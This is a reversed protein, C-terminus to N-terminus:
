SSLLDPVVCKSTPEDLVGFATGVKKALVKGCIELVRRARSMDALKRTATGGARAEQEQRSSSLMADFGSRTIGTKKDCKLENRTRMASEVPMLM